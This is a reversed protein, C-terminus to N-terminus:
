LDKMEIINRLIILFFHEVLLRIQCCVVFNTKNDNRNSPTHATSIVDSSISQKGKIIIKVNKYVM